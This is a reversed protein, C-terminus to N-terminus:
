RYSVMDHGTKGAKCIQSRAGAKHFEFVQSKSNDIEKFKDALPQNKPVLSFIFVLELVSINVIQSVLM